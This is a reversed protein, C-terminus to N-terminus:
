KRAMRWILIGAITVCGLVTLATGLYFLIVEIYVWRITEAM